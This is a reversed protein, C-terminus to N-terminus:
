NSLQTEFKSILQFNLLDYCIRQIKVPDILALSLVGKDGFANAGRPDRWWAALGGPVNGAGDRLRPWGGSM